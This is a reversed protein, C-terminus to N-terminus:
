PQTVFRAAGLRKVTVVPEDAILWVDPGSRLSTLDKLRAVLETRDDMGIAMRGGEAREMRVIRRRDHSRERSQEAPAFGGGDASDM